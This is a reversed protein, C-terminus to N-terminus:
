QLNNGNIFYFDGKEDYEPTGHLGDGLVTCIDKIYVEKWEM